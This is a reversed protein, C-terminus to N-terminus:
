VPIEEGALVREKISEVSEILTATEDYLPEFGLMKKAKEMSACPSRDLHEISENLRVGSLTALFESYPVFKINPEHGFHRYLACALGYLTIAKSCAAHFQEGISVDNNLCAVALRAIDKSHVHQLTYQGLEPLLLEEGAMVTKLVDASRNGQPGIPMWNRGCVHGPHLITVKLGNEKAENLLWKTIIAKNKGYDDPALMEHGESIPSELKKGYVWLSGIFIIRTSVKGDADKLADVLAQIDELKYAILDLVVDPRQKGIYEIAEERTARIREAEKWEPEDEIFSPRTGRSFAYVKYGEKVLEPVMYSGVHGTAGIVAATKM